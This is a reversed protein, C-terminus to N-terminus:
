PAVKGVIATEFRATPGEIVIVAGAEAPGRGTVPGFFLGQADSAAVGGVEAETVLRGLGDRISQQGGTFANGAITMGESVISMAQATGAGFQASADVRGAAFDASIQGNGVSTGGGGAQTLIREAPGNYVAGGSRPLDSPDTTVGFVVPNVRVLGAGAFSTQFVGSKGYELDIFAGKLASLLVGDVGDTGSRWSFRGAFLGTGSVGDAELLIYSDTLRLRDTGPERVGLVFVRRAGPDTGPGLAAERFGVGEIRQLGGTTARLAAYTQRSPVDVRLDGFQGPSLTGFLTVPAPGPPAVTEPAPTPGQGPAEVETAAPGSASGGCGAAAACLALLAAHFVAKRM